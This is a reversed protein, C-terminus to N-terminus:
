KLYCLESRRRLKKQRRGIANLKANSRSMVSEKDRRVSPVTNPLSKRKPPKTQDVKASGFSTEVDTYAAGLIGYIQVDQAMAPAAVAAAVAAAILHKKM